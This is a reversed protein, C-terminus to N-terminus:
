LPLRNTVVLTRHTNIQNILLIHLLPYICLYCHNFIGLLIFGFTYGELYLTTIIALLISHIWLLVPAWSSIMYTYYLQHSHISYRVYLWYLTMYTLQYGMHSLFYLTEASYPTHLRNLFITIICTSAIHWSPGIFLYNYLNTGLIDRELPYNYKIAYSEKCLECTDKIGCTRTQIWQLLCAGHVYKVSGNCKCPSYLPGETEFCIRCTM